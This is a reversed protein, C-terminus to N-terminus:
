PPDGGQERLNEALHKREKVPRMSFVTVDEHKGDYLIPNEIDSM